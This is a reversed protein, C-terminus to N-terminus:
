DLRHCVVLFIFVVHGVALLLIPRLNFRFAPVSMEMAAVYLLPPLVIVIVIQANIQPVPLLNVFSFALGVVVLLIPRLLGLRRAVASVAVVVAVLGVVEILVKM